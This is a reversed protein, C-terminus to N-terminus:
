ANQRTLRSAKGALGQGRRQREDSAAANVKLHGSGCGAGGQECREPIESGIDLARLVPPAADTGTRCHKGLEFNRRDFKAPEIGILRQLHRERQRRHGIFGRVHQRPNTVPPGHAPSYIRDDRRQLKDLSAKYAAMDTHTPCDSRCGKCALCWDLAQKVDESAWGETIVEGRLMEALLRARGRTSYREEQTARYSPCM